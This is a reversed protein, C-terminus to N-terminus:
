ATNLQVLLTIRTSLTTSSGATGKKVRGVEPSWAPKATDKRLAGNEEAVQEVAVRLLPRRALSTARTNVRTRQSRVAGEAAM